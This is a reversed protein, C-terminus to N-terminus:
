RSATACWRRCFGVSASPRRISAPPRPFPPHNPRCPWDFPRDCRHPSIEGAGREYPDILRIKGDPAGPALITWSGDKLELLAPLPIRGLRDADVGEAVRAKLDLLRAARVIDQPGATRGVLALEHRLQAGDSPIQFHRALRVLGEIGTDVVPTAGGEAPRATATNQM